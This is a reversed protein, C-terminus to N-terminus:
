TEEVTWARSEVTVDVPSVAATDGLTWALEGAVFPVKGALRGDDTVAGDFSLSRPDVLDVDLLAILMEDVEVVAGGVDLTGGYCVALLELANVMEVEAWDELLADDSVEFVMLRAAEDANVIRDDDEDVEDNGADAMLEVGDEDGPDSVDVDDLLQISIGELEEADAIMEAPTVGDYMAALIVVEAVSLADSELLDGDVIAEVGSESMVDEVCSELM